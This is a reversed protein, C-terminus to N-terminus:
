VRVSTRGAVCGLFSTALSLGGETLSSPASGFRLQAETSDLITMLWDWNPKMQMEILMQLGLSEQYSIELTRPLTPALASYDQLMTLLDAIQRVVIGFARTLSSCTTAMTIPESAPAAAIAASGTATSRRLSTPDIGM